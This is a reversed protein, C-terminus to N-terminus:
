RAELRAAAQAPTPRHAGQQLAKLVELNSAPFVDPQALGRMAAYNATWSGIGTSTIGLFFLGDFRPDRALRARCCIGRELHTTM